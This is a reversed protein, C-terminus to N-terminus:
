LVLTDNNTQFMIRPKESLHAGVPLELKALLPRFLFKSCRRRIYLWFYFLHQDDLFSIPITFDSCALPKVMSRLFIIIIIINCTFNVQAFHLEKHNRYGKFTVDPFHASLYLPKLIITGRGKWHQLSIFHGVRVVLKPNSTQMRHFTM